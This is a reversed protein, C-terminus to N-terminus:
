QSEEIDMIIASSIEQVKNEIPTYSASGKNLIIFHKWGSAKLRYMKEEDDEISKVDKHWYDGNLEVSYKYFINNENDIIIIPIDVEKDKLIGWENSGIILELNRNDGDKSITNSLTSKFLERVWDQLNSGGISKAATKRSKELIKEYNLLGRGMADKRAQSLNKKIEYRVLHESISKSSVGLLIGIDYTSLKEEIYKKYLYEKYTIKYITKFAYDLKKHNTKGIIIKKVEISYEDEMVSNKFKHRRLASSVASSHRLNYKLAIETPSLGKALLEQCLEVFDKGEKKAVESPTSFTGDSM